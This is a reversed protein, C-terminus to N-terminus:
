GLATFTNRKQGQCHRRRIFETETEGHEKLSDREFAEKLQAEDEFGADKYTIPTTDETPKVSEPEGAPRLEM